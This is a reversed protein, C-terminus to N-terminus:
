RGDDRTIEKPEGREQVAREDDSGHETKRKAVGTKTEVKTEM